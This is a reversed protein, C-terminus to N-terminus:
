SMLSLLSVYFVTRIHFSHSILDAVYFQDFVVFRFCDKYDFGHQEPEGGGTMKSMAKVMAQM